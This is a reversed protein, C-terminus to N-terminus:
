RSRPFREALHQYDTSRHLSRLAPDLVIEDWWYSAQEARPLTDLAQRLLEVAREQYRRSTEYSARERPTTQTELTTVAQGCIRAARHLQYRSPRDARRVAEEADAVADESRGLRARATGRGLYAEVDDPRRRLAESFDAEASTYAGGALYANARDRYLSANKRDFLLAQTFDNVAATQHEVGFRVLRMHAEGRMQYVAADGVGGQALYADLSHVVRQYSDPKGEQLLVEARWRYPEAYESRTAIAADFATLAEGPKRDLQLLRGKSAYSKALALSGPPDVQIARDFDAVAAARDGREVYLLARNRYLKPLLTKDLEGADVLRKGIKVAEDFEAVAQGMTRRRQGAFLPELVCQGSGFLLTALQRQASEQFEAARQYAKAKSVYAKYQEPSLKAALDLDAMGEVFHGRGIRMVARNNLLAYMAATRAEENAADAAEDKKELRKYATDFDTEAAPYEGLLSEAYGRMLYVWVFDKRQSLCVGLGSKALDPRDVWLYCVSLFYSAWFHDPDRALASQFAEIAGPLDDAQYRANGDLYHDLATPTRKAAEQRARAAGARDLYRALREYYARPPWRPQENPQSAQPALGALNMEGWELIDRAQKPELEALILVLEYCSALIKERNDATFADTLVPPVPSGVVVGISQLAQRSKEGTARRNSRSGDGTALTAHLFLADDRLRLFDNTARWADRKDQIQRQLQQAEQQLSVLTRESNIRASVAELASSARGLDDPKDSAALAQVKALVNGQSTQVEAIRQKQEAEQRAQEAQFKLEQHKKEADIGYAALGGVVALALGAVAASLAKHRIVWRGARRVPSIPRALIGEGSLFRRLDDALDQASAYRKRPEKELCKLCITELDRPLNPQFRSPPVPEDHMVQMITELPTAANFPPRGTLFEYLMAGLAYVDALPTIHKSKGSAQEPAMYSPTGLVAGSVTAGAEDLQKALGFDTIKPNLLAPDLPPRSGSWGGSRTSVPEQASSADRPSALLVNAPKLDRHVIGQQHAFHVTRALIELLGAADGTPLPKRALKGSLSGGDVFELALYALGREEGIEYIQVINPHQLRAVAQAETRFRAVQHAGAHEGALIMKLAVLRKLKVQLAKYVVGMGGRGLEGLIEYGPVRPVDPATASAVSPRGAPTQGPPPPPTLMDPQEGRTTVGPAATGEREAPGNSYVGTPMEASDVAPASEPSPELVTTVQPLHGTAGNDLLVPDQLCNELEDQYRPFRRLYEDATLDPDTRRRLEWEAAILDLVVAPQDALEPYNTLYSEVRTAKGAKLTLELDVHVLEVLAAMREEDDAPLYDDIHPRRGQAWAEEFCQILHERRSDIDNFPPNTITQESM